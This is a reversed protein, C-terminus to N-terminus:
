GQLVITLTTQEVLDEIDLSDEDVKLVKYRRDIVDGERAVFLADGDKLFVKKPVSGTLAYGYFRLSAEAKRAPPEPRFKDPPLESPVKETENEFYAAFINRGTGNYWDHEVSELDGLHLTPDNSSFRRAGKKDVQLAVSRTSPPDPRTVRDAPASGMILNGALSLALTTLAGALMRQTVVARAEKM